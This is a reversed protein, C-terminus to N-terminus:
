FRWRGSPSESSCSRPWRCTPLPAEESASAHWANCARCDLRRRTSCVVHDTRHRLADDVWSYDAFSRRGLRALPRGSILIGPTLGGPRHPPHRHPHPTRHANRRRSRPIRRLHPHRLQLRPIPRRQRHGPPRRPPPASASPTRAPTSTPPPRPPPPKTNSTPSLAAPSSATNRLPLTLCM